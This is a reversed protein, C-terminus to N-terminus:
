PTGLLRRYEEEPKGYADRAFEELARRDRITIYGREARIFGNGELVHLSTTVTPRRVALMVSLFEHTLAMEDGDSRDHVMLLWRALREDVPHIANSLATFSVQTGLAHAFNDLISKAGDTETLLQEFVNTPVRHGAGAVQMIIEHLSTDSGTLAVTPSFGDRGFLGAEAKNGEPSVVLVSGIGSEPFYVHTFPQGPAAIICGQPLSVPELHEALRAFEPHPIKSLLYNRIESQQVSM